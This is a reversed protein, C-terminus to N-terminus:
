SDSAREIKDAISKIIKSPISKVGIRSSYTSYKQLLNDIIPTDIRCIREWGGEQLSVADKKFPINTVRQFDLVLHFIANQNDKVFKLVYFRDKLGSGNLIAKPIEEINKKIKFTSKIEKLSEKDSLNDSNIRKASVTKIYDIPRRKHQAFDCAPTLVVSYKSDKKLIDGTWTPEESNVEYYSQLGFIKGFKTSDIKPSTKRIQKVYAEMEKNPKSHRGLVKLFLYIIERHLAVDGIEERLSGLIVHISATSLIDSVTPARAKEICKETELLLGCQPKSGMSDKIKKVLKKPSIEKAFPELFIVKSIGVIDGLEKVIQKDKETDTVHKTWIAVILLGSKEIIKKIINACLIYSEDKNSGALYLDIILLRVKEFFNENDPMSDSFLVSEGDKRLSNVLDNVKRKEKTETADDIVLISGPVLM